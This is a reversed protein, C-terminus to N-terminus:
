EGQHKSTFSKFLFSPFNNRTKNASFKYSFFKANLLFIFIQKVSSDGSAAFWSDVLETASKRSQKMLDNITTHLTSPQLTKDQRQQAIHILSDIFSSLFYQCNFECTKRKPQFNVSTWVLQHDFPSCLRDLSDFTSIITLQKGRSDRM